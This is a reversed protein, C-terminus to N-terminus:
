PHKLKEVFRWGQAPLAAPAAVMAATVPEIRWVEDGIVITAINGERALVAGAARTNDPLEAYFRDGKTLEAPPDGDVHGDQVLLMLAGVAVAGSQIEAVWNM